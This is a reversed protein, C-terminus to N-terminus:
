PRPGGGQDGALFVAREVRIVQRHGGSRLRAVIESAQASAALLRAITGGLKAANGEAVERIRHGAPLGAATSLADVARNHFASALDAANQIQEELRGALMRLAPDHDPAAPLGTCTEGPAGPPGSPATETPMTASSVAAGLVGDASTPCARPHPKQTANMSPKKM